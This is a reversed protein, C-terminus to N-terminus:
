NGAMLLVMVVATRFRKNTQRIVLSDSYTFMHCETHLM